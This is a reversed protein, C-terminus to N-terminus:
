ILEVILSLDRKQSAGIRSMRQIKLRPNTITPVTGISQTSSMTDMM